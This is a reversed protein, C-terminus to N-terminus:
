QQKGPPRPKLKYEFIGTRDTFELEGDTVTAKLVFSGFSIGTLDWIFSGDNSQFDAITIFETTTPSVRKYELIILLEDLNRDSAIWEIEFKKGEIIENDDPETIFIRPAINTTQGILAREQENLTRTDQRRTEDLEASTQDNVQVNDDDDDGGFLDCGSILILSIVYFLLFNFRNM